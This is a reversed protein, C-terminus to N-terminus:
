IVWLLLHTIMLLCVMNISSWLILWINCVLLYWILRILLITFVYILYFALWRLVRNLILVQHSLIFGNILFLFWILLSLILLLLDRDDILCSLLIIVKLLLHTSLIGSCIIFFLLVRGINRSWSNEMLTRLLWVLWKIARLVQWLLLGLLWALFRHPKRSLLEVVFNAVLWLLMILCTFVLRLLFRRRSLSRWILLKLGGISILVLKILVGSIIIAFRHFLYELLDYLLIM